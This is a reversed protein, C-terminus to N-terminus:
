SSSGRKGKPWLAGAAAGLPGLASGVGIKAGLSLGAAGASQLLAVLSGSAVGGGNAIAAASMMKTAISGAAIGKATFGLAWIGAPVGAFAVGLGVAAGIAAGKLKSSVGKDDGAM